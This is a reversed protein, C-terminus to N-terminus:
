RYSSYKYAGDEHILMQKGYYDKLSGREPSEGTVVKGPKV